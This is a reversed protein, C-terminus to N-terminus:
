TSFAGRLYTVHPHHVSVAPGPTPFGPESGLGVTHGPALWEGERLSTPEDPFHPYFYYGSVPSSHPVHASVSLSRFSSTQPSLLTLLRQEGREWGSGPRVGAKATTM